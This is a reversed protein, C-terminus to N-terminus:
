SNSTPQAPNINNLKNGIGESSVGIRQSELMIMTKHAPVPKSFLFGQMLDCQNAKLFVQQERNEVGEAVVKFGLQKALFIIVSSIQMDSDSNPIDKIFERDIKLTDIPLNKLYSLSSYGTGFDDIAIKVGMKKIRNIVSLGASMNEMLLTETIELELREPNIEYKNLCDELFILFGEDAFHTSSINVALTIEPYHQNWVRLQRCSAELVFNDMQSIFGMEEMVPIFEGPPLIGREPHDWRVLSEFGAVKNDMSVKPQLYLTFEKEAFARRLESELSLNDVAASAMDKKFVTATNGGANKSKYMAIEAHKILDTVSDDITAVSVGISGSVVIASQDLQLPKNILALLRKSLNDLQIPSKINIVLLAFEDGGLRALLGLNRTAQELRQAMNTLLLDGQQHGLSENIRKFKDLDILFTTLMGTQKSVHQLERQAEYLFLQRNALGTLSDFLSLREMEQARADITTELSELQFSLDRTSDNLLDLEDRLLSHHRQQKLHQRAEQFQKQGLLPLAQTLHRLRSITPMSFMSTALLFLLTCIVSLFINELMGQSILRHLQDVRTLLLYNAHGNNSDDNIPLLSLAYTHEGQKIILSRQRLQAPDNDDAARQVIERIAADDSNGTELLQAQWAVINDQEANFNMLGVKLPSNEEGSLPPSVVPSSMKPSFLDREAMNASAVITQLDQTILLQRAVTNDDTATDISSVLLCTQQCVITTTPNQPAPQITQKRAATIRALWQDSNLEAQYHPRHHQWLRAAQSDLLQIGALNWNDLLDPARKRLEDILVDPKHTSILQKAVNNLRISAQQTLSHLLQIQQQRASNLQQRFHQEFQQHARWSLASLISVLLLLYVAASKWRLSLFRKNMFLPNAM